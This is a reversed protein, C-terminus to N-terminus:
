SKPATHEDLSLMCPKGQCIKAFNSAVPTSQTQKRSWMCSEMNKNRHGEWNEDSGFSGINIHLIIHVSQKTKINQLYKSRCIGIFCWLHGPNQGDRGVARSTCIASWNEHGQPLASITPPCVLPPSSYPSSASTLCLLFLLTFNWWRVMQRIFVHFCWSFM